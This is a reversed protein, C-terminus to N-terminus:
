RRGDSGQRGKERCDGEEAAVPHNDGFRTGGVVGVVVALLQYSGGSSWALFSEVLAFKM